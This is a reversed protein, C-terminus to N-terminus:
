KEGSPLAGPLVEVRVRSIGSRHFGLEKAVRSSVDILRPNDDLMRDNIRVVVSKKTKINTVRVQTGLPYRNSAATLANKDYREDSATTRGHFRDSYYSAIGKASDEITEQPPQAAAMGCFLLASLLVSRKM